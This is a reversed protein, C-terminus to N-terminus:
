GRTCFPDVVRWCLARTRTEVLMEQLDATLEKAPQGDGPVSSQSPLTCLGGPSGHKPFFLERRACGRSFVIM